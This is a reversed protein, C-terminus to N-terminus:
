FKIMTFQLGYALKQLTNPGRRHSEEFDWGAWPGATIEFVSVLRKGLYIDIMNAGAGVQVEWWRLVPVKFRFVEIQVTPTIHGKPYIEGAVGAHINPFGLIAEAEPTEPKYVGDKDVQGPKASSDHIGHEWGAHIEWSSKDDGGFDLASLLSCGSALLGLVM